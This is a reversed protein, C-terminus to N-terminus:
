SNSITALIACARAIVRQDELSLAELRGELWADRQARTREALRAGEPTTRFLVKRRDTPDPTRVVYAASTLRNVSQSMSAPAVQAVESLETLTQPGAKHLWNLVDLAADGLGGEPRESRFRRYLRGVTSRVQAGLGPIALAEAPESSAEAEM